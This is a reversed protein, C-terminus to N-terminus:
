INILDLLDSNLRVLLINTLNKSTLKLRNKNLILPLSSFSREVSVQTAAASYVGTAISNLDPQSYKILDWYVLVDTASHMRAQLCLARLLEEVQNIRPCDTRTNDNEAMFEELDTISNSSSSGTNSISPSCLITENSGVSLGSSDPEREYKTAAEWVKM